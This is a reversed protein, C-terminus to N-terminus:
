TRPSARAATAAAPTCSTRLRHASRLRHGPAGARHRRRRARGAAGAREHLHHADRADRQGRVQDARGLARGDGHLRDHNRQFPAYLARMLHSRASTTPASSSAIPGCSTRSRPAKRSSSRTRSWPSTSRRRGRERLESPPDRRAGQRRHRGAGHEQRRRGQLRDHPPRHQAGRGARVAPRGLRGRGAAHRGRHVADHRARGRARRRHHLAPPRRRRQARVLEELGPEYIPMGGRRCRAIKRADVDLCLVDNGMEALCAGTVLGVYGTGVVTVKMATGGRSDQLLRSVVRRLAEVGEEVPTRPASASGPKAAGLRRRLHGARRGAADAAPEEAGQQGLAEEIGRHLGAAAGAPPQRHQLRPLARQQHRTPRAPDLRIPTAVQRSACWAKSSTTSTPSTARWAPRPQLRRDARGELIAERSRFLAMDPRGWPGYVTFFRLGTTPLGFLHSYTHAMLENAKKTAAYLSVPHDVNDHESFPLKRTAATSALEVAYVLHEVGHHRCGELINTFGVLNADVYAHPNELSYRVGAQAALHISARRLEENPSCRRADGARDAIDMKVFRFAPHPTLRALRDRKLQPTTTTTSTTSASWRTAARSCASRSTCASSAPPAPSAPVKMEAPEGVVARVHGARVPAALPRRRGARHERFLSAVAGADLVGADDAKMDRWVGEVFRGFDGKVWRALPVAFGQKPRDFIGRPLWPEVAKRVIYKGTAGRLKLSSRCPPPSISSPTRSSRCACRSRTRWAPATSRPSCPTRCACWPIPTSCTRSRIARCRARSISPPWASAARRGPRAARRVRAPVDATEDARLASSPSSASSPIPCCRRGREGARPAPPLLEVAAAAAHAAEVGDGRLTFLPRYQQVLRENYYRGYGAFLEDGGDGSLAVTVHQRALRSVYWTPIASPDAFPEDYCKRSRRCSRDRRRRARRAARTARLRPAAGRARAYRRSTSSTTRSASPSPACRTTAHVQTMAAVVASSDVGGSLFAGLPVDAVAPPAEVVGLLQEVSSARDVRAREGGAGAPLPIGSRARHAARGVPRPDAHLGARAEAGGRLDHLPAPVYASPSTSTWRSRARRSSSARCRRRADEAGLRLRPRREAAHLLAAQHRATARWRSRAARAPGLDRGRVHGRAEALRAAGWAEFGRLIGRHRQQHPLPPRAGGARTRLAPYNYIEGNFTIVFRGDDSTWRSTAAPSTSSRCAGCASASTTRARLHGRRGPRPARHHQVDRAGDGRAM